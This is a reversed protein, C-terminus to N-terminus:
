SAIYEGENVSLLLIEEQIGTEANIYIMYSRDEFVGMAELCPIETNFKTPIYCKKLSKLLFGDNIESIVDYSKQSIEPFIRNKHNM